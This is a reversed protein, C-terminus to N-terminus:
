LNFYTAFDPKSDTYTWTETLVKKGITEDIWQWTIMKFEEEKFDFKKDNFYKEFIDHIDHKGFSSEENTLAVYFYNKKGILEKRIFNDILETKKLARGGSYIDGDEDRHEEVIENKDNNTAACIFRKRLLLQINIKSANNKFIFRDKLKTAAKIFSTIKAEIIYVNDDVIIILDPSGFDGFSFENYIHIASEKKIKQDFLSDFFKYLDEFNAQNLWEILRNILGRESYFHLNVNNIESM